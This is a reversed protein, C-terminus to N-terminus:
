DQPFINKLQQTLTELTQITNKLTQEQTSPMLENRLLYDVTVGFFEALEQLKKSDPENRGQEWLGYTSTAVHLHEAVQSQKLGKQHRLNKLQKSLMILNDAGM